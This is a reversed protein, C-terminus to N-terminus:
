HNYSYFTLTSTYCQYSCICNSIFDCNLDIRLAGGNNGSHCNNFTSFEVLLKGNVKNYFIAGGNSDSYCDQFVCNLVHCNQYSFNSQDPRTSITQDKLKNTPQTDPYFDDWSKESIVRILAASLM